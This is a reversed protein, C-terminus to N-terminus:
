TFIEYSDPHASGILTLGYQRALTVSKDTPAAKSVFVGVGSRIAKMTMDVPVRGSTYLICESLKVNHSLAWGVAKDLANHRGVDECCVLIEGRRQLLCSHSSHTSSYLRTNTNVSEALSFIWEPSFAAPQVKKLESRRCFDALTKSGTCCTAVTEPSQNKSFQRSTDSLFVRARTGGKCLYLLNIDDTSTIIGETLLRGLVLETLHSPSCVIRYAPVESVYIEIIHENLLLSNKDSTTGDRHVVRCPASKAQEISEYFSLIKMCNKDASVPANPNQQVKASQYIRGSM